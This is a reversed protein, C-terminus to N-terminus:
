KLIKVELLLRYRPLRQVPLVLMSEIPTNGKTYGKLDNCLKEFEKDEKMKKLAIISDDYGNIYKIYIPLMPILLSFADGVNGIPM